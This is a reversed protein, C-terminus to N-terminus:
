SSYNGHEDKLLNSFDDWSDDMCTLVFANCQVVRRMYFVILPFTGYSELLKPLFYNVKFIGGNTPIKNLTLFFVNLSHRFDCYHLHCENSDLLTAYFYKLLIKVQCWDWEHNLVLILMFKNWLDHHCVIMFVPFSVHLCSHIDLKNLIVNM